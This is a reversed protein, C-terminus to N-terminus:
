EYSRNSRPKSVLRNYNTIFAQVSTAIMKGRETLTFVRFRGKNLKRVWGLEVLGDLRRSAVSSAIEFGLRICKHYVDTFTGEKLEDLALLLPITGSSELEKLLTKIDLDLKIGLWCNQFSGRKTKRV